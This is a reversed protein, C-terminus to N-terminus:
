NGGMARNMVMRSVYPKMAALLKEGPKFILLISDADHQAVVYWADEDVNSAVIRQNYMESRHAEPDYKGMRVIDRCKISGVRRRSRKSLIKDVDLDGNTFIYEYEVSLQGSIVYAAYGIGVALAVFLISFIGILHLAFAMLCTLILLVAAIWVGVQLLKEGNTKRIPVIQEVYSDNM